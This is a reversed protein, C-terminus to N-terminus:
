RGTSSCPGFCGRRTHPVASVWPVAGFPLSVMDPDTLGVFDNIALAARDALELADAVSARGRTGPYDFPVSHSSDDGEYSGTLPRM